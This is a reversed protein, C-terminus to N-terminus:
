LDKWMVLADVMGLRPHDFARPLRALIRFGCDEWLHVAPENTSVVFNFQIAKFGARRCYEISHNCLARAVGRGRAAEATMYGCNAVHAGGGQQNARIYSAGLVTGDHSVALFNRKEPSSWYAMGTAEDADRALALTEGARVIPELLHWIAARDDPTAPRITFDPDTTAM